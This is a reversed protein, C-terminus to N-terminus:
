CEIRQASLLQEGMRGPSSVMKASENDTINSKVPKGRTGIRDDHEALWSTIRDAKSSLTEVTKEEEARTASREGREDEQRHRSM